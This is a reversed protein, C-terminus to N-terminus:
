VSAQTAPSKTQHASVSCARGVALYQYREKKVDRNELFASLGRYEALGRRDRSKVAWKKEM